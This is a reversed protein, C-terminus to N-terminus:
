PGLPKGMPEDCGGRAPDALDVVVTKVVVGVVTVGGFVGVAVPIQGYGEQEAPRGTGPLTPTLPELGRLEVFFFGLGFPRPNKSSVYSEPPNVVIQRCPQVGCEPTSRM